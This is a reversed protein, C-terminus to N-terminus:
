NVGGDIGFTRVVSVKCHEKKVKEGADALLQKLVELHEAIGAQSKTLMEKLGPDSAKSILKKVTKQM